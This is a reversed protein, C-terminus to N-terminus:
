GLRAMAEAFVQALEEAHVLGAGRFIRGSIAHIFFSEGKRWRHALRLFDGIAVIADAARGSKVLGGAIRAARESSSPNAALAAEPSCPTM